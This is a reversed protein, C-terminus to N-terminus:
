KDGEIDARILTKIYGNKNEVSNLKEIIDQETNKFLRLNVSITSEKQYKINSKYNTRQEYEKQTESRTKSM